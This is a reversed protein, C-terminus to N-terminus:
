LSLKQEGGFFFSKGMVRAAFEAVAAAVQDRTERHTTLMHHSTIQELMRVFRVSVDKSAIARAIALAADPPCTRDHVEGMMFLPCGLNPLLTRMAHVGRNLSLVQPICFANEYGQYPAILRSESIEAKQGTREPKRRKWFKRVGAGLRRFLLYRRHLDYVPSLAVVGALQPLDHHKAALSLAISGGMSFGILLVRAHEKSLSLFHREACGLWDPFFTKGFDDVTTGHGPYLPLAVTCGLAELPPVLPEMEFPTGGFGHLLLCATTSPEKV